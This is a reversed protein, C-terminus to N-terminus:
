DSGPEPLGARASFRTGAVRSPGLVPNRCGPEPWGIELFRSSVAEARSNGVIKLSLRHNQPELFVYKENSPSWIKRIGERTRCNRRPGGSSLGMEARVAAPYQIRHRRSSKSGGLLM